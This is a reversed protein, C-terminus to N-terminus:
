GPIPFGEDMEMGHAKVAELYSDPIMHCHVDIQASGSICISMLTIISLLRKM